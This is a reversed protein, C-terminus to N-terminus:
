ESEMHVVYMYKMVIFLLLEICNYGVEYVAQEKNSNWFIHWHVNASVGM